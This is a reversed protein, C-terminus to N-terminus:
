HIFYKIHFYLSTFELGPVWRFTLCPLVSVPLDRLTTTIELNGLFSQKLFYLPVWSPLEGPLPVHLWNKIIQMQDRSSVHQFSLDLKHLNEESMWVPAM